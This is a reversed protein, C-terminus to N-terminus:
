GQRAADIMLLLFPEKFAYNVTEDRRAILNIAISLRVGGVKSSNAAAALRPLTTGTTRLTSASKCVGTPANRRIAPSAVWAKRSSDISPPSCTARYEKMPALGQITTRAFPECVIM